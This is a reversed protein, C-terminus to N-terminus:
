PAWTPPAARPHRRHGRPVHPGHGPVHQEEHGRGPRRRPEHRGAGPLPTRAEDTSMRGRHLEVDVVARACMRVRSHLEAYAELPTLGGAEGVLDTAYCAWGEAMTGGCFMAIRSACDVAAVRGVRSPARFAHWNQVHHGIGGHHVVHNLRIVSDNNAQLLARQEGEPMDPEIPTVLYDHVPPRGFAAPSRYFLFYLYPAAERAWAPRPVYRIPFDPWTLLAQEEALARM